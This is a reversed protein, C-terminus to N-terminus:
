ETKKEKINLKSAPSNHGTSAQSLFTIYTNIDIKGALADQIMPASYLLERDKQTAINLEDYFKM